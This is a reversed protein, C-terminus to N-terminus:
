KFFYIRVLSFKEKLSINERSIRDIDNENVDLERALIKWKDLLNEIFFSKIVDFDISSSDHQHDINNTTIEKRNEDNRSHIALLCILCLLFIILLFILKCYDIPAIPNGILGQFFM